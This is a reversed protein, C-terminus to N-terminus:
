HLSVTFDGFRTTMGHKRSLSPAVLARPLLLRLQSVHWLDRRVGLGEMRYDNLLRGGQKAEASVPNASNILIESRPAWV